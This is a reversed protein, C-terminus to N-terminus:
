RSKLVAATSGHLQQIVWRNMLNLMENPLAVTARFKQSQVEAGAAYVWTRSRLVELETAPSITSNHCFLFKLQPIRKLELPSLRPLPRPIAGNLAIVGGPARGLQCACQFAAQVGEQLGVLFVRSRDIRYQQNLETLFAELLEAASQQSDWVCAPSGGNREGIRRPGRLSIGIFNRSSIRPALRLAEIENGGRGHFFVLVPYAYNRLFHEPLFLRIAAEPYAPVSPTYFGEAPADIDYLARVNLM